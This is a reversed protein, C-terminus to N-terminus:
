SESPSTTPTETPEALEHIRRRLKTPWWWQGFMLPAYGAIVLLSWPSESAGIVGGITSLAALTLGVIVLWRWKVILDLQHEALRLTAARVQPDAPIPGRMVAKHAAAEVDRPVDGVALRERRFRRKLTLTTTAGFILSFGGLFVLSPTLHSPRETILTITLLPLLLLLTSSLFLAWTPMMVLRERM